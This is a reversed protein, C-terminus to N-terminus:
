MKTRTTQAKPKVLASARRAVTRSLGHPGRAVHDAASQLAVGSLGSSEIHRFAGTETWRTVQNASGLHFKFRIISYPTEIRPYTDM